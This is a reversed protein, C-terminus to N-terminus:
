GSSMLSTSPFVYVEVNLNTGVQKLNLTWKSFIHETRIIFRTRKPYPYHLLVFWVIAPFDRLIIQYSKKADLMSISCHSIWMFSGDKRQQPLICGEWVACAVAKLALHGTINPFAIVPSLALDKKPEAVSQAKDHTLSVFTSPQDKRLKEEATGKITCLQLCLTSVCHVLTQQENIPSLSETESFAFRVLSLFCQWDFAKEGGRATVLLSM